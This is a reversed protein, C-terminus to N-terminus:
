NLINVRYISEPSALKLGNIEVFCYPRVGGTDVESKLKRMVALVSMTQLNMFMLLDFLYFKNHMFFVLSDSAHSLCCLEIKCMIVSGVKGTGPVGHIYLCRGLCQDDCIAGKIFATIEEMERFFFTDKMAIYSCIFM